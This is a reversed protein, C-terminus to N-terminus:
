RRLFYEMLDCARELHLEGVVANQEDFAEGRNSEIGSGSMAFITPDDMHTCRTASTGHDPMILIRHRSESELRELLPAVIHRDIDELLRMKRNTDGLHSAEDAAEVHVCVLDHTDLADVAAAGKAALNTDLLGTAEPVHAVDWGIVRSLGRALDTGAVLTGRLKFREAFAPLVPRPGEGYVWIANAPNEGLDRRVQNIDHEALVRQSWRVLRELPESGAGHPMHRRIPEDFIGQPDTTRLKPLPGPDAWVFLNRYSRGYHLRVSRDELANNLDDILREAQVPEIYGATFDRLRRDTVTVLNCRFVQDRPGFPVNRALAELPGRAVHQTRPDYGLVSLLAIEGSPPFGDPITTATGVRGRAAIRDFAPLLAVQLPTRGDLAAVPEDVAGSPIVIAYKTTTAM